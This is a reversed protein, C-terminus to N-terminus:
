HDWSRSDTIQKFHKSLALRQSSYSSGIEKGYRRTPPALLQEYILRCVIQGHELLSPVDHSRVELVAHTGGSEPLGWGFGPDFFGAYHIRFEGIAPDYPIMEAAYDPPISVKQRSALIYFAGAELIATREANRRIAVWYDRPDYYNINALDIPATNNLARYGVIDSSDTGELDIELRLGKAIIPKEPSADPGYVITEREDLRRLMADSPPPAGRRLRLQNLRSGERVIVDFTLPAIEAYLRGKYGARVEEFKAPYDTILRTFIDLRGTSSKPNARGSIFDPLSLQEQLLVIYVSGKKLLASNSLDIEEIRLKRLKQEVTADENPLFSASVRYATRSLRLDLSSPQIQDPLIPADARINGNRVLEELRQVPLIGRTLESDPSFLEPFLSLSDDIM